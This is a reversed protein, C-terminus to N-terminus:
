KSKINTLEYLELLDEIASLRAEKSTSSLNDKIHTRIHNELILKNLSAVSRQIALGQTLINMCYEENEIMKEMGRMQGALIKSRHLARNKLDIIM